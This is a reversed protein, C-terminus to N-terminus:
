PALEIPDGVCLSGPIKVSCDLAIKGGAERVIRRLVAVDQQLTDPDFTTMVCRMRLQAIAILIRLHLGPWMREAKGAVGGIVVNPRLRRLDLKLQEMAGDTAVLLPCYMSDSLVSAQM